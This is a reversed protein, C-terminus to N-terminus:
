SRGGRGGCGGGLGVVVGGGEYCVAMVCGEVEDKDGRGGFGGEGEEVEDLDKDFGEITKEFIDTFQIQDEVKFRQM